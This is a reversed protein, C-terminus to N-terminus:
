RAVGAPFEYVKNCDNEIPGFTSVKSASTQGPANPQSTNRPEFSVSGSVQDANVMAQCGFTLRYLQADEPEGLRVPGEFEASIELESQPAIRIWASYVNRGLETDREMEVPNGDVTARVLQLPSYLSVYQVSTGDPAPPEVKNGILYRAAGSPPADNRLKVLATAKVQQTVTNVTARYQVFRHLYWDIKNAGANNSVVAFSDGSPASFGGDVGIQQMLRQEEPREAWIQLHRGQTATSLTASLDRLTPLPGTFLRTWAQLALEGQLDIRENNREETLQQYFEYFLIRPATESSVAEPWGDVKVPGTIKLFAALAYPDVSIVGDVNTGGSQPYLSQMAMAASPFDPSLTVNQWLQSVEFRSYRRVYDAPAVLQRQPGPVGGELLEITRGFRELSLKGDVATIEGFSGILGGSGRAETPTQVVLLYRRPGDAGLLDPLASVVVSAEDVSRQAEDLERTFSDSRSVLEAAIWPGRAGLAAARARTLSASSSALPRELAEIRDVAIRGDTMRLEGLDLAGVAAQANSTVDVAAQSLSRLVRINPGAIPLQRAVSVVRSDIARRATALSTSGAAFGENAAATDGSRAAALGARTQAIGDEISNRVRLIQLAAVAAVAGSGITVLLLASLSARRTRRTMARLAAITVVVVVAAAIASPVRAPLSTPLRLLANGVAVGCVNDVLVRAVSKPNSERGPLLPRFRSAAFGLGAGACLLGPTTASVSGGIAASAAAGAAVIVPWRGAFNTAVVIVVVLLVKYASDAHPSDSPKGTASVALAGGLVCAILAIVPGFREPSNARDTLLVASGLLYSSGAIAGLVVVVLLM